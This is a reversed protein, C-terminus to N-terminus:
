LLDLKYLNLGKISLYDYYILNEVSEIIQVQDSASFGSTVFRINEHNSILEVAQKPGAFIAYQGAPFDGELYIEFSGTQDTFATDVIKKKEGQSRMLYIEGNELGSITGSISYDQSFSFTGMLLLAAVLYIIKM